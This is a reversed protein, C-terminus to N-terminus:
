SSCACCNLPRLSMSKSLGCLAGHPMLPKCILRSAHSDLISKYVDLYGFCTFVGCTDWWVGTIQAFHRPWRTLFANRSLWSSNSRSHFVFAVVYVATCEWSSSKLQCRKKVRCYTFSVFFFLFWRHLCLTTQCSEMAWRAACAWHGILSHGIITELNSQKWFREKLKARKGEVCVSKFCQSM